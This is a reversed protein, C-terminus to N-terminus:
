TIAPLITIDDTLFRDKSDSARTAKIQLTYTGPDLTNLEGTTAWAVTINPATAAGTISTTKTILAASGPNGIKAQFTYGTSFDILDGNGDYWEASYEPLDSGQRYTASM